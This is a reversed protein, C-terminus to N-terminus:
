PVTITTGDGNATISFTGTSSSTYTYTGSWAPSGGPPPTPVTAIFPGASAGRM